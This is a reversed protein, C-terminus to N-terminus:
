GSRELLLREGEVRARVNGPLNIAPPADRAALMEALQQWQVFGMAQLPWGARSWAAKCVERVVISPVDALRSVDLVIQGPTDRQLCSELLGDAQSEVIVQAEGAQQAARLIATDVERNYDARLRPLLEHRIRNRTLRVDSNTADARFTQGLSALYDEIEARSVTLLPRLLAVSPSMTRTAPMGALGALGTGRLLHHLVTEVQDDATHATVVMRAGLREATERLFAYRATRAAAEIGDPTALDTALEHRGLECDVALEGCLEAVWAADAESERGRLGHDYHGVVLKGAGATSRKAELLARLLAVSDAGGSVAVLVHVDTWTATPWAAALKRVVPQESPIPLPETSMM